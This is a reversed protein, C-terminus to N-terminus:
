AKILIIKMIIRLGNRCSNWPPGPMMLPICTSTILHRSLSEAMGNSKPSYYPTTCIRFGMLSGFNRTEHAAYAPGNDSLWEIPRPLQDVFGFRREIPEAMLDRVMDGCIGDTLWMVSSRGTAATWAM